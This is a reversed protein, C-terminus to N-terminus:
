EAHILAEKPVYRKICAAGVTVADFDKPDGNMEEQYSTARRFHTRDQNPGVAVYIKENGSVPKNCLYCRPGTGPQIRGMRKWTSDPIVPLEGLLDSETMNIRSKSVREGGTAM